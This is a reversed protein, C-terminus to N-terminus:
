PSVQTPNQTSKFFKNFLSCKSFPAFDGNEMINEFEYDSLSLISYPTFNM